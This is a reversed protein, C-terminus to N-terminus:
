RGVKDLVEMVRKARVAIRLGRWKWAEEPKASARSASRCNEAGACFVGGRLVRMAGQAPGSPDTVSGTPYSGYRDICWEYVNGLMDFIGWANPAKRGCVQPAGNEGVHDLFWASRVLDRTSEGAYFRSLTGARCTYEWEAETLLRFTGAPVHETTCLRRCFAECDEWSVTEVPAEEGASTFTSPNSGMVRQWQKQSVEFASVYIPSAITVRRQPNEDRKRGAEAQPSGMVFRGPPILRLVIATEKTVIELPLQLKAAAAQQRDRAEVSGSALGNVSATSAGPVPVFASRPELEARLTAPLDTEVHHTAEFPQFFRGLQSSIGVRVVYSKGKELKPAFPTRGPGHGGTMRVWADKIEKGGVIAVIRLYPAQAESTLRLAAPQEPNTKLAEGALRLVAEWDSKRKASRAADILLAYIWDEVDARMKKTIDSAPDILLAARAHQLAVEREGSSVAADAAVLLTNIRKKLARGRYRVADVCQPDLALAQDALRMADGWKEAKYAQVTQALLESLSKARDQARRAADRADTAKRIGELAAQDKDRGPVALAQRFHAEAADFEQKELSGLGLKFAAEYQAVLAAEIVKPLQRIAEEYLATRATFGTGRNNAKAVLELFAAYTDGGFTEVREVDLSKRRAEFSGRARLMVIFADAPPFRSALQEAYILADAETEASAVVHMFARRKAYFRYQNYGWISCVALVLVGVQILLMRRRKARAMQASEGLRAAIEERRKQAAPHEPVEQLVRAALDDAEKLKKASFADQCEAWLQEARELLEIRPALTPDHPALERVSNLAAVAAVLDGQAVADDAQTLLGRAQEEIPAIEALQEHLRAVIESPTLESGFVPTDPEQIRGAEALLEDTQAKAETYRQHGILQRCAELGSLLRLRREQEPLITEVQQRALAAETGEPFAELYSRFISTADAYRGQEVFGRAASLYRQEDASVERPAEQQEEPTVATGCAFCISSSDPIESSCKPCNM